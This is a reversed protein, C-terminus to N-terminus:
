LLTAHATLYHAYLHYNLYTKCYILCKLWCKHRFPIGAQDKTRIKKYIKVPCAYLLLVLMIGGYSFDIYVVKTRVLSLINQGDQIERINM